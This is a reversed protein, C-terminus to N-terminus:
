QINYATFVKHGRFHNIKRRAEESIEHDAPSVAENQYYEFQLKEAM